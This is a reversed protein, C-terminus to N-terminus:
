NRTRMIMEWFEGKWLLEECVAKDKSCGCEVLALNENNRIPKTNKKNSSCHHCHRRIIGDKWTVRKELSKIIEKFKETKKWDRVGDCNDPNSTCAVSKISSSAKFAKPKSTQCLASAVSTTKIQCTEAQYIFLCVKNIGGSLAKAKAKAKKTSKVKTM